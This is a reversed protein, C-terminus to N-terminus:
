ALAHAPAIGQIFKLAAIQTYHGDNREVRFVHGMGGHGIEAVIRWAGLVSGVAVADIALDPLLTDRARDLATGTDDDSAACLALAEPPLTPDAPLDALAPPRNEPALDVVRDHLPRLEAYHETRMSPRARCVLATASLTRCGPVPLDCTANS